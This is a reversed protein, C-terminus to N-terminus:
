RCVDSVRAHQPLPVEMDTNPLMAVTEQASELLEEMSARPAYVAARIPLMTEAEVM